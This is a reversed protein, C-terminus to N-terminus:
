FCHDHAPRSCARPGRGEQSYYNLPSQDDRRRSPYRALQHRPLHARERPWGQRALLHTDAPPAQDTRTDHQFYAPTPRPRQPVASRDPKWQSSPAAQPTANLPAAHQCRGADSGSRSRPRPRSRSGSTSSGSSSSSSSSSPAAPPPPCRRHPPAPRDPAPRGPSAARKRSPHSSPPGPAPAPATSTPAPLPHALTSSPIPPPIQLHRYPQALAHALAKAVFEALTLPHPPPPNHRPALALAEAM